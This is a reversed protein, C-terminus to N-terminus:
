TQRLVTLEAEAAAVTARLAAVCAEFDRIILNQEGIVAALGRSEALWAEDGPFAVEAGWNTEDRHWNILVRQAETMSYLHRLYRDLDNAQAVPVPGHPAIGQANSLERREAALAYIGPLRAAWREGALSSSVAELANAGLKRRTEEVTLATVWGEMSAEDDFSLIAPDVSSSGWAGLIGSDHSHWRAAMIPLGAAAADLMATRASFPYSDIFVDAASYLAALDGRVGVALIRGGTREALDAFRGRSAPGVIRWAVAPQRTVVNAVTEALDRTGTTRFKFESAITLLFLDEPAVGLEHRIATRASPVDVHPEVPLPVAYCAAPPIGRRSACIEIAFERGCAVVDAVSRGLWFVHPAHNCFIVPPRHPWSLALLPLADYPHTHLVVVDHEAALRRLCRAREVFSSSGPALRDTIGGSASVVERLFAPVEHKPGTVVVSHHRDTDSRIWREILRGHGGEPFVISSAVHLVRSPNSPYRRPVAVDHPIQLSAQALANEIAPSGFVGAHAFAARHAAVGAYLTASSIAGVEVLAEVASEARRLEELSNAIAQDTSATQEPSFGDADVRDNLM